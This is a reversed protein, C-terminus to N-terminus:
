GLIAPKTMDGLNGVIEEDVFTGPWGRWEVALGAVVPNLLTYRICGLWDQEDRCWRDFSERQWFAGSDGRLANIKRGTYNKFQGLDEALADNRGALNRLVLHLHSPMTTGAWVHWGRNQLWPLSDKIVQLATPECLDCVGCAARDLVEEVRRFRTQWGSRTLNQQAEENLRLNELEAQLEHIVRTPLCGKRCLTVFYSRDAVTWHPLKGRRFGLTQVDGLSM